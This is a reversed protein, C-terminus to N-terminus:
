ITQQQINSNYCKYKIFTNKNNIILRNIKKANKVEEYGKYLYKKYLSPLKKRLIFFSSLM